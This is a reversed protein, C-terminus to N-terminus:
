ARLTGGVDPERGLYANSGMHMIVGSVLSVAIIQVVYVPFLASLAAPAQPDRLGPMLLSMLLVPSYAIATVLTYQLANRSYLSFAADIIESTSRARLDTDSM